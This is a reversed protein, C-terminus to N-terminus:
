SVHSENTFCNRWLICYFHNAAVILTNINGSIINFVLTMLIIIIIIIVIIIISSIIIITIIIIIIIIITFIIIFCLFPPSVAFFVVVRWSERAALDRTSGSKFGTAGLDMQIWRADVRTLSGKPSVRLIPKRKQGM